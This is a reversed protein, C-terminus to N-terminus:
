SRHLPLSPVHLGREEVTGALPEAPTDRGDSRCTRKWENSAPVPAGPLHDNNPMWGNRSLQLKEIEAKREGHAASALGLAAVAMGFERRNM